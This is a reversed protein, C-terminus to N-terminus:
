AVGLKRLEESYYKRFLLDWEESGEAVERKQSKIKERVGRDIQSEERLLGQMQRMIELRVENKEEPLEVQEGLEDLARIMGHSLEIVKDRSYKSGDAAPRNSIVIKHQKMLEKKVLKYMEQYSIGDRRIREQYKELYDRVEQNLRDAQATDEDLVRRVKEVAAAHNLIRVKGSKELRKILEDSFYGVYDKPLSM